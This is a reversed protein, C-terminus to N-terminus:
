NTYTEFLLFFLLFGGEVTCLWCCIALCLWEGAASLGGHVACLHGTDLIHQLIHVHDLQLEGGGAFWRVGYVM